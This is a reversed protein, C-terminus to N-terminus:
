RGLHIEIAQTLIFGNQNTNTFQIAQLAFATCELGPLNPIPVSTQANGSGNTTFSVLPQISSLDLYVLCGAVTLPSAALNGFYVTGGANAAGSIISITAASGLVPSQAALYTGTNPCSTGVWQADASQHSLSLIFPGAGLGLHASVAILVSESPGLQLTVYSLVGNCSDDDCARPILSGCVGSYVRLVTDMIFPPGGACTGATLTIPCPQTNVYRYWVDRVPTLGCPSPPLGPETTAATCTGINSGDTVLAANSCLDNAPAQAHSWTVIAAAIVLPAHRM